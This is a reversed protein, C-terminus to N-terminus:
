ESSESTTEGSSESNETQSSSRTRFIRIGIKPTGEVEPEDIEHYHVESDNIGLLLWPGIILGDSVSQLIKGESAYLIRQGQEEKIEM